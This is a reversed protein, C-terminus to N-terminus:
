APPPIEEPAPEAQSRLLEAANEPAFTNIYTGTALEFGAVEGLKPRIELHWHYSGATEAVPNALSHLYWNLPVEGVGQVLKGLVERLVGFLSGAEDGRVAGFDAAHRRPVIWTEFPSRSAWPCFAVFHDTVMVVRVGAREEAEVMACFVCGHHRARHAEAGAREEELVPAASRTAFLQGHPHALSAGASRGHNYMPVVAGVGQVSHRRYREWTVQGM